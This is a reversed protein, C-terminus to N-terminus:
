ELGAWRCCSSGAAIALGRVIEHGLQHSIEIPNLPHQRLCALPSAWGPLLAIPMKSNPGGFINSLWQHVTLRDTRLNDAIVLSEVQDIATYEAAVGDM